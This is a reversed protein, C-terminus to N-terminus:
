AENELKQSLRAGVKSARATMVKAHERIPLQEFLNTM